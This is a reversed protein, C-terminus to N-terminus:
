DPSSSGGGGKRAGVEQLRERARITRSAEDGEAARLLDYAEVLMSEAEAYRGLATLCAGLDSLTEGIYRHGAPLAARRITLAQRLLREADGYRRLDMYVSALGVRPFATNPHGRALVQDQVRLSRQYLSAAEAYRGVDQMTAALNSYGAALSPHPGSHIQELIRVFESLVVLAREDEGKRQLLLGYSNLTNAMEPHMDGLVARRLAIAEQYLTDAEDLDGKDRLLSALNRITSAVEPHDNGLRARQIALADRLLPEADELRNMQRLSRALRTMTAAIHPDGAPYVKRELELARRFMAEAGADDGNTQLLYALGNLAETVAPHEDGHLRRRTALSQRFLPEADTINGIDQLLVALGLQSTATEEHLEGYLTRHQALAQELLPRAAENLGLTGYVDGILRMMTAQVDPQDRLEAAVRRAGEDLLERATVTEGRSQSPDSVTFVSTLFAAVQEAKARELRAADREIALRRSQIGMAVAFGTLVVVAGVAVSVGMRHRRVFKGIRYARTDARASVPLGSLHRAIDDALREVSEYRRRPDKQLATMLITDLDGRLRRAVVPSVAAASPRAPEEDCVLREVEGLTKGAVDHPLRGTLIQYLIVGLGYVDTAVTIPSGRLQEPSAYAPTLLRMATGTDHPDTENSALLKAIGFDLLKPTGEATVLINAPKLDRHVVLHQHAFRVAACVELMLALREEIILDQEDCYRDLPVGEIVEMTVWPIGDDTTGGDLLRAINPHQLDALIQREARFRRLHEPTRAGGIIKLAVEAEYEGDARRALYVAGMGGHGLERLLEWPGMRQGPALETALDRAARAVADGLADGASDSAILLSEVQRRLMPDGGCERNLYANRDAPQLDAAADFLAQLRTWRQRDM